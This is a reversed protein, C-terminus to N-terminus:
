SASNAKQLAELDFELPQVVRWLNGFPDRV